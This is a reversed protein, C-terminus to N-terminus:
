AVIWRTRFAAIAAANWRGGRTPWIRSCWCTLGAMGEFQLAHIFRLNCYGRFKYVSEQRIKLSLLGIKAFAIEAVIERAIRHALDGLTAMRDRLNRLAQPTRM